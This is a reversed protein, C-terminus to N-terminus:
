YSKQTNQVRSLSFFFVAFLLSFIDIFIYYNINWSNLKSHPNSHEQQQQQESSHTQKKNIKM